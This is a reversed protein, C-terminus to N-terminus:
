RIKRLAWVRGNKKGRSKKVKSKKQHRKIWARMGPALRMQKNWANGMERALGVDELKRWTKYEGQMFLDTLCGISNFTIGNELDYKLLADKAWKPLKDPQTEVRVTWPGDDGYLGCYNWDKIM